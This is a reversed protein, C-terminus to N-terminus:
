FTYTTYVFPYSANSGKGNQILFAGAFLHGFGGGLMLNSRFAYTFYADAEQGVDTSLAGGKPAKVIASGSTNYLSDYRSALVLIHYDFNVRLRRYPTVHVGSRVHRLNRYGFLDTFGFLGHDSPYLQDFTEMRGAVGSRQGAAYAYEFSFRPQLPLFSPSYGAIAYGAWSDISDASYHGTQRDGEAAYDFGLPLKGTWRLGLTYESENGLKGELSKVTNATKLFVYPEVTARPVLRTLSGYVGHFNMGGQQNDFSTPHDVVVSSTFIDVSEGNHALTLRAADFVRTVNTWDSVGVLREAGFKLEQRGTRLQIWGNERDRFDVYFQRLDFIDKNSSTSNAPNMGPVESDQAQVFLHFWTSPAIDLNLRLRSAAYEDNDGPVFGYGTREEPRIRYQGSVRLWDPLDKNLWSSVMWISPDPQVTDPPTPASVQATSPQAQGFAQGLSALSLVLTALVWRFCLCRGSKRVDRQIAEM